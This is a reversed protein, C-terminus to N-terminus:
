KKVKTLIVYVWCFSLIQFAKPPYAIKKSAYNKNNKWNTDDILGKRGYDDSLLPNEIELSDM